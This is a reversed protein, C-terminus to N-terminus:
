FLKGKRSSIKIIDSYFFFFASKWCKMKEKFSKKEKKFPKNNVHLDDEEGNNGMNEEPEPEYPEPEDNEEVEPGRIPPKNGKKSGHQKQQSEHYKEEEQLANAQKIYKKQLKYALARDKIFIIRIFMCFSFFNGQDEQNKQISSLYFPDDNFEENNGGPNFM